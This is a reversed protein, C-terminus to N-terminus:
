VCLISNLFEKRRMIMIYNTAVEQKTYVSAKHGIFNVTVSYQVTEVGNEGNRDEAM